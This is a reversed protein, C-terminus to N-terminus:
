CLSSSPSSPSWTAGGMQELTQLLLLWNIDNIFYTWRLSSRLQKPRSGTPLGDSWSRRCDDPWKSDLSLVNTPTILDSTCLCASLNASTCFSVLSRCCTVKLRRSRRDTFSWTKWSRKKLIYKIFPEKKYKPSKPHDYLSMAPSYNYNTKM